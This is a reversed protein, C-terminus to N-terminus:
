RRVYLRDESGDSCALMDAEVLVDGVLAVLAVMALFPKVSASLLSIQMTNLCEVATGSTLEGNIRREILPM